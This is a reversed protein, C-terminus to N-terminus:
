WTFWVVLRVGEDGYIGALLEMIRLLTQWGPAGDELIHRRSTKEVRYVTEGIAWQTGERWSALLDEERLRLKQAVRSLSAPAPSFSGVLRYEGNADKHYEYGWITRDQTIEDWDIAKIEQWTIWSPWLVEEPYASHKATYENKVEESADAPIGREPAIPRFALSRAGFLSGFLAYNREVLPGIRVLPLWLTEDFVEKLNVDRAEVWGEIDTGM